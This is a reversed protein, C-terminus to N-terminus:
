PREAAEDPLQGLREDNACVGHSDHTDTARLHKAEREQVGLVGFRKTDPEIVATV